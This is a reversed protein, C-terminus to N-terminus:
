AEDFLYKVNMVDYTQPVYVISRDRLHNMLSTNNSVPPNDNLGLLHGIEHTITSKKSNSDGNCTRSNIEITSTTIIGNSYRATTLGYWTDAYSDVELTYSSIDDSEDIRINSRLLANWSSMSEEILPKWNSGNSLEGICEISFSLTEVRCVWFIDDGDNLNFLIWEDKYGTNNTYERQQVVLDNTAAAMCWDTSYAESSRPEFKYQGNHAISIKWQQNYSATYTYQLLPTKDSNEKGDQVSIAKGSKVSEIKYYGNHLYTLKWRQYADSDYDWLELGAGETSYNPADNNDIQLYTGLHVNEIFYTGNEVIPTITSYTIAYQARYASGAEFAGLIVSSNSGGEYKLGVGYNAEGACWQKVLETVSFSVTGPSSAHATSTATATSLASRTTSLGKNTWANAKNWTLEYEDWNKLCQYLGIDVSGSTVTDKYYYKVNLVAYTINANAPLEPM